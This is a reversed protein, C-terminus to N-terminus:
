AALCIMEESRGRPLIILVSHTISNTLPTWRGHSRLGSSPDVALYVRWPWAKPRTMKREQGVAELESNLISWSIRTADRTCMQSERGISPTSDQAPQGAQSGGVSMQYGTMKM